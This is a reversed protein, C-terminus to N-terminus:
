EVVFQIKVTKLPQKEWSRKYEMEVTAEGKEVMGFIIMEWGGAGVKTSSLVYSTGVFQLAPAYNTNKVEWLYGTTRNSELFVIVMNGVKAHMMKGHAVATLRYCDTYYAAKGLDVWNFINEYGVVQEAGDSQRIFHLGDAAVGFPTKEDPLWGLKKEVQTFFDPTAKFLENIGYSNGSALEITIGRADLFKGNVDAKVIISLLAPQNMLVTYSYNVDKKGKVAAKLDETVAKISDNIRGQLAVDMFGDVEPLEGYASEVGRSIVTAGFSAQAHLPFCLLLSFIATFVTKRLINATM